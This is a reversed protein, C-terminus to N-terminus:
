WICDFLNGELCKELLCDIQSKDHVNMHVYTVVFLFTPWADMKHMCPQYGWKWCKKIENKRVYTVDCFVIKGLYIFDNILLCSCGIARRILFNPFLFTINFILTQAYRYTIQVFMDPVSKPEAESLLFLWLKAWYFPLFEAPKVFITWWTSITLLPTSLFLGFSNWRLDGLSRGRITCDLLSMEVSVTQGSM